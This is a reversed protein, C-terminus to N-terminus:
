QKLLETVAWQLSPAFPRIEANKPSLVEGSRLEELSALVMDQGELLTLETLPVGLSGRFFHAVRQPSSQVFWPELQTSTWNIEELLERQVAEMATEGPELHGGFLAWTGPYVIGAVDDRLQLLWKGQRELMALAVEPPNM